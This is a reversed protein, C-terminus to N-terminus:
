KLCYQNNTFLRTSETELAFPLLLCYIFKNRLRLFVLLVDCLFCKHENPFVCHNIQFTVKFNHRWKYIETGWEIPDERMPRLASHLLTSVFLEKQAIHFRAGGCLLFLFLSNFVLCSVENWRRTTKWRLLAFFAGSLFNTVYDDPMWFYDYFLSDLLPRM